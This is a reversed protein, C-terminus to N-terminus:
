TESARTVLGPNRKFVVVVALVLGLGCGLSVAVAARAAIAPFLYAVQSRGLVSTDGLGYLAIVFAALAGVVLGLEQKRQLRGIAWVGGIWALTSLFGLGLVRALTVLIADAAATASAFSHVVDVAILVALAAALSPGWNRRWGLAATLVFLGLAALLWPVASPGPVWTIRGTAVVPKDGARMPITWQGVTHRNNPAARVASPNPGEWRTRSDSWRATQGSRVTGNSGARSYPKGDNGLVVVDSSTGNKLEVKRGLDLIRLELGPLTPSVSLIESKYNTPSADSVTHAEAPAATFILLAAAAALTAVAARWPAGTGHFQGMFATM